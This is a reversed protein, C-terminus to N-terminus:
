SKSLAPAPFIRQHESFKSLIFGLRRSFSGFLNIDDISLMYDFLKTKMEHETQIESNVVQLVINDLPVSHHRKAHFFLVRMVTSNHKTYDNLVSTAMILKPPCNVYNPIPLSWLHEYALKTRNAANSEFLNILIIELNERSISALFDRAHHQSLINLIGQRLKELVQEFHIPLLHKLLFKLNSYQKLAGLKKQNLAFLYDKREQNSLNYIEVFFGLHTIDRIIDDDLKPVIEKKQEPLFINLILSAEYEDHIFLPIQAKILEFICRNKEQSLDNDFLCPIDSFREIKILHKQKLFDIIERFTNDNLEHMISKLEYINKPLYIQFRPISLVELVQSANLPYLLYVLEYIDHIQAFISEKVKYYVEAIIEERADKLIEKFLFPTKIYIEINPLIKRLIYARNKTNLFEWFYGFNRFDFFLELSEKNLQDFFIIRNQNNLYSFFKKQHDINSTLGPLVLVIRNLIQTAELHTLHSFILEIHSIDNILYSVQGLITQRLLSGQIKPMFRILPICDSFNTMLTTLTSQELHYKLFLQRNTDTLGLFFHKFKIGSNILKYFDEQIQESIIEAQKSNLADFLATLEYNEIYRELLIFLEMKLRILEQPREYIENLKHKIEQLLPM